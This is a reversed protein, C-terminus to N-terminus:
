KINRAGNCTSCIGTHRCVGCNTPPRDHGICTSCLGSGGCAKCEVPTRKSPIAQKWQNLTVKGDGGCAWCTLQAKFIDDSNYRGTGYCEPCTMNEEQASASEEQRADYGDNADNDNRDDYGYDAEEQWQEDEQNIMSSRLIQIGGFVLLLIFFYKIIRM